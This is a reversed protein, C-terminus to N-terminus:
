EVTGRRHRSGRVGRATVARVSGPVGKAAVSRRVRLPLARAQAWTRPVLPPSLQSWPDWPSVACPGLEPVALHRARITDELEHWTGREVEAESGASHLKNYLAMPRLDEVVGLAGAARMLLDWDELVSLAPDVRIGLDAAFVPVSFAHIPTGNLFLHEDLSWPRIYVPLPPSDVTRAPSSGSARSVTRLAAGVRLVRGPSKDSLALLSGVWDAQVHDDDDLMAFYRSHAVAVAADIPAGRSGGVVSRYSIGAEFLPEMERVLGEVAGVRDPVVDHGAIVVVFDRCDQAALCLLAECLEMPRDGRTRVVVTLFPERASWDQLLGEPILAPAYVGLFEFLAPLARGDDSAPRSV